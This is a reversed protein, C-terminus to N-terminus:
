LEAIPDFIAIKLTYALIRVRGQFELSFGNRRNSLSASWISGDKFEVEHRASIRHHISFHSPHDAPVHM